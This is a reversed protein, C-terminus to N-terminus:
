AKIEESSNLGATEPSVVGTGEWIPPVKKAHPNIPKGKSDVQCYEIGAFFALEKKLWRNSKKGWLGDAHEWDDRLDHYPRWTLWHKLLERM